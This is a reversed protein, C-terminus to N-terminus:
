SKQLNMKSVKLAFNIAEINVTDYWGMVENFSPLSIMEAIFAPELSQSLLVGRFADNVDMPINFNGGDAIRAINEKLYKAVVDGWMVLLTM